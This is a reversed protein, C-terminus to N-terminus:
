SRFATVLGSGHQTNSAILGGPILARKAMKQLKEAHSGHAHLINSILLCDYGKPCLNM